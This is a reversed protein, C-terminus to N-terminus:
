AANGDDPKKTEDVITQLACWGDLIEKPSLGQDFGNKWFERATDSIKYSNVRDDGDPIMDVILIRDQMGKTIRRASEVLYLRADDKNNGGNRYERLNLFGERLALAAIWDEHPINPAPLGNPLLPVKVETQSMRKEELYLEYLDSWTEDNLTKDLSLNYVEEFTM